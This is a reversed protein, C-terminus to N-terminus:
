GALDYGEMGQTLLRPAGFGSATGPIRYLDGTGARRVLLDPRSGLTASSIGVVWDYASVDLSLKKPNLLGGPGNGRYLTLMSGKRFISDPAGDTDFRGIAIQDAASIASHAVYSPALGDLGRGPYLRLAGGKPQGMLDPLGDGTMDGVAALLKVSGFGTGITTAKGLTGTGNGRRLLLKGTAASRLVVDGYGDGDWDGASLVTDADPATVGTDIPAGANFTGAEAFLTLRGGSFSYLDPAMSGTVDGGGTLGVTKALGSFPGIRGGFAGSGRGLVIFAKGSRMRVVLDPLGDGSVDGRGAVEAVAGGASIPKPAAFGDGTSGVWSLSGDSRVLALDDRGDGDLDGAGALRTVDAWTGDLKRKKKFAASNAPKSDGPARGLYLDLRDADTARAVLDNRGDGDIDGAATVLDHGAFGTLEQGKAAFGGQGDGRHVEVAGSTTQVVLDAAGDGTLDPSVQASVADSWDGAVAKGTAYRTLGGTPVIFLRKDSARRVVLDPHPTAALDSDLDRAAWGRQDEAAIRRIDPIRAYLYRGPCATSAADRHGNIAEFVTPGVQQSTSAANIGHLSLKWAFLAGYAEVTAESPQKIDYNGIASMAFAYDNYNLTHAGVVPRDVGGYRGEWVRGFRDVLFNYGIDSWGRSKVHYAYISRIIGPVEARTYDNANVTHHVFGAHVEFYHLSSKERLSEDAGWQARSYIVPKPTVISDSSRAATTAAALSAGDSGTSAATTTGTAALDVKEVSDSGDDGDMTATDIGARETATPTSGPDVVALTLDDPVVQGAAATAQVQVDDVTGILVPDTGPRSNRAEASDPDPGHDDHYPLAQWAQWVGDTRTRVRFALDTDSVDEGHAWTVGVAGYGTVKQPTSTVVKLLDGAVRETSVRAQVAGTGLRSLRAASGTVRAASASPATLRIERVVPDAPATAVTSPRQAERIYAALAGSVAPQSQGAGSTPQERVIDLTVVSAAPVLGACVVALVLVQQCLTVFGAKNRSM